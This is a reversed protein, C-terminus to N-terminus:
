SYQLTQPIRELVVKDKESMFIKLMELVVCEYHEIDSTSVRTFVEEFKKFDSLPYEGDERIDLDDIKQAYLGEPVVVVIVADSWYDKYRKIEESRIHPPSKGRTKVEVLVMVDKEDYVLLDPSSTLRRGTVSNWKKYTYKSKADLMTIEYGYLSVTYGARELLSRVIEKGLNGKLYNDSSFYSGLSKV